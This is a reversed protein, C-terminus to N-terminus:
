LCPTLSCLLILAACVSMLVPGSSVFPAIWTYGLMVKSVYFIIVWMTFNFDPWDCPSVGASLLVSLEKCATDLLSFSM